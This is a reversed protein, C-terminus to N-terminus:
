VHARGIEAKAMEETAEGHGYPDMTAIVLADPKLLGIEGPNPRRVKLVVDAGLADDASVLRAGALQYEADQFGAKAGAGHELAVEAGLGAFKKVTEPTAAVRTEALDTEAPVGILM